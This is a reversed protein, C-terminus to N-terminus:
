GLGNQGNSIWTPMATGSATVNNANSSKDNLTSVEGQYYATGAAYTTTLAEATTITTGSIASITYTNTGLTSAATVSGTSSLRIRDGVQLLASNDASTTLTHTGSTGSITGSIGNAAYTLFVNSTDSGDLWLKLSSNLDISSDTAVFTP